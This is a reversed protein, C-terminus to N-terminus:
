YKKRLEASWELGNRNKATGKMLNSNIFQFEHTVYNDNIKITVSNGNQTWTNNRKDAIGWEGALTILIGNEIFKWDQPPLPKDSLDIYSWTTGVLQEVARQQQQQRSPTTKAVRERWANIANLFAHRQNIDTLNYVKMKKDVRTPYDTLSSTTFYLFQGSVHFIFYKFIFVANTDTMYAFGDNNTDGSRIEQLEAPGTLKDDLDGIAGYVAVALGLQINNYFQDWTIDQACVISAFFVLLVVALIAKKM